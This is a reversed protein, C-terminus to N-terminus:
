EDNDLHLGTAAYLAQTGRGAGGNDVISEATDAVHRTLELTLGARDGEELALRLDKLLHELKFGPALDGAGLKGFVFDLLPSGAVGPRVSARAKELDLGGQSALAFAEASALTVGAVVTQNVLKALQGNGAVGHRVITTGLVRLLPEVRDIATDDGGVMISLTGAEAGVTGGSVPADLTALGRESAREAIRRALEPSSTTMDVLVTGPAAADIIGGDGLYVAEVDHPYSVLTIVVDRDAAAEAPSTVARAGAAVLPETKAATRNYVVLDHGAKLVHGAMPLGMLGTGIWGVRLLRSDSHPQDTM